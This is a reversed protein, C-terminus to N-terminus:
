RKAIVLVSGPANVLAVSTMLPFVQSGPIAAIFDGEESTEVVEILLPIKEAKNVEVLVDSGAFSSHNVRWNLLPWCGWCGVAEWVARSQCRSRKLLQLAQTLQSGDRQRRELM